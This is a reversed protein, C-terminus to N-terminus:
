RRRESGTGCACSPLRLARDRSHIIAAVSNDSIFKDHINIQRRIAGNEVGPSRLASLFLANLSRVFKNYYRM